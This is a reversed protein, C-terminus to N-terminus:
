PNLFKERRHDPRLAFLRLGRGGDGFHLFCRDCDHERGKRLERVHLVVQWRQLETLKTFGPMGRDPNGNSIKWFLTGDSQEQVAPLQLNAARKKGLTGDEGHCQVCHRIYMKRGGAAADARNALPNAKGAAEPPAQWKPDPEYAATQAMALAVAGLLLGPVWCARRM